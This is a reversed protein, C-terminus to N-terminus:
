MSMFAIYANVDENPVPESSKIERDSLIVENCNLLYIMINDFYKYDNINKNPNEENYIPINQSSDLKIHYGNIKM